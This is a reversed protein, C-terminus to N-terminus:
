NGETLKCRSPLPGIGGWAGGGGGGGGRGGRQKGRSPLPGRGGGGGGGGVQMWAATYQCTTLQALPRRYLLIKYATPSLDPSSDTFPEFQTLPHAHHQHCISYALFSNNVRESLNVIELENKM